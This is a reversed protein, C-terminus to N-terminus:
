DAGKKPLTPLRNGTPQPGAFEAVIEPEIIVEQAAESAIDFRDGGNEKADRHPYDLRVVPQEQGDVVRRGFAVARQDLARPNMVIRRWPRGLLRKQIAM